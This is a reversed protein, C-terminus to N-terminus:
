NCNYLYTDVKVDLNSFQQKQFFRQFVHYWLSFIKYDDKELVSVAPASVLQGDQIKTLMLFCSVNRSGVMPNGWLIVDSFCACFNWVSSTDRLAGSQNFCMERGRGIMLVIWIQTTVRWWYPIEACTGWVDNRLPVLVPRALHRTNEWALSSDAKYVTLYYQLISSFYYTFIREISTDTLHIPTGWSLTSQLASFLLRGDRLPRDFSKWSLPLDLFTPFPFPPCKGAM